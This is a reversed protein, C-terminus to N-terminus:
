FSKKKGITINIHTGKQPDYDVRWKLSGDASQRGVVKGFGASKELSGTIM